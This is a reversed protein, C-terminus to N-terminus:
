PHTGAIANINESNPSVKETSDTQLRNISHRPISFLDKRKDKLLEPHAAM